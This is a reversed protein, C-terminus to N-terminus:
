VIAPRGRNWLLLPLGSVITQLYHPSSDFSPTVEVRPLAALHQAHIGFIAGKRTTTATAFGLERAIAFERTGVHEPKGYPYALHRVERGVIASLERRARDLEDHITDPSERLLVAHSVTHCGITAGGAALARLETADCTERAALEAVSLGYDNALRAVHARTQALTSRLFQASLADYVRNKDALTAVSYIREGTEDVWRLTEHEAIVQELLTWWPAFSREVFSSTAYVTFPAQHRQFIPLAHELNDRYGDDFTFSVFRRTPAQTTIRRQAEDLDVIDVDAARFGHVLAELYQPTVSLGANPAFAASSSPQVRHLMLISGKGAAVRSALQAVGSFWLASLGSRFLRSKIGAM